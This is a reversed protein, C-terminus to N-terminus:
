ELGFRATFHFTSGKGEESEAWLDGDTMKVLQKCISLGLGMGGFKRTHSGDAQVFRRFIVDIKDRPIGVGSDTISFHLIISNNDREKEEVLFIIRGKETFKVANGVLIVIIQRIIEPDGFLRDPLKMDPKWLLELGKKEAQPSLNDYCARLVQYLSMITKSLVMNGSDMKAFRFLDNVLKLMSQTSEQLLKLYERQEENLNSDALLALMGVIGNMPTRIEHNMNTLFESKAKNAEEAIEKAEILSKEAQKRETIDRAMAQILGKEKDLLSASTEIDIITGNKNMIVTEFRSHGKELIRPTEEKAFSRAWEPKLMLMNMRCLEERDYGTMEVTRSNVDLIIGEIDHIIIADNSQEFLDRYKKRNEDLAKQQLSLRLFVDVKCQLLFPEFPKTIYDVAGISFGRQIFEDSIYEASIFLVPVDGLDKNKKINATTEWGDMGPMKIDMIILSIDHNELIELAESGSSARIFKRGPKRLQRELTSLNEKIDDVILINCMNDPSTNNM